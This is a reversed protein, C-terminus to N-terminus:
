AEMQSHTVGNEGLLLQMRSIFDNGPAVRYEGGLKLRRVGDATFMNIIVPAGGPSNRCLNKLDGLLGPKLGVQDLNLNLEVTEDEEVYDKEEEDPSAENGEDTFREIESAIIKVEVKVGEGAGGEAGAFAEAKENVKRDVRGKVTIIEDAALLERCRSFIDNFVIVEVSGELDDLQVFAMPDGKRTTFRKVRAVMGVVTVNARDAADVLRATTIAGAREIAAEHGKLPHSSVYMGLTEKELRMLDHSGFEDGPIHPDAVGPSADEMALDFFSGQGTLSDQQSQSGMALAQPMVALMGKRTAGTSDLAGCKILSEMAKKNLLRSDVRRCFDFISRFPGEKERVEIISRIVGSGVNKVAKLGFRIRDEVVRFGAGSENVDPPLVVIGMRTCADVYFPVKDKTEMVSSITAAMYEVPYNAKMYATQYSIMAYAVAHSKNFSYDGAAEMLNWLKAATRSTVKNEKCGEIFQHKLTALLERNKKGIAKRLDDAEAPSFSAMVKAIEMLQEQYIAVGYTPKLIDELRPDDYRVSDPKRKNRAYEPIFQMPGPRYLAVLAILDEFATPKVLKLSDKMGDSEFQFVGDSHGKQMMAFTKKDELPLNLLDIDVGCSDRVLKVATDLIDLNRLGLFDMKLLGLKEIYNMAYQTVVEADPGKQQLPIYETLPRDSIVVGAAHIGDQRVLGELFLALDIIERAVPNSDYAQRLEQGPKLCDKLSIGPGEPIFKVIADVDGYPHGLVRGADRTAQRAAMTGFTIIQAVSHRGYREAVYELVKERKEPSFDIDIDPMSKRGPNLFREFLLDYKLPDVETIGLCYSVLSGAASGRGPGVPIGNDKAFKVFDWVILFYSAFGMEAITKLEFELRERIEPTMDSGFRRQLGEECLKRLYVNKDGNDPVPFTPILLRDFELEVNCREAIERTNEIAEPFDKFEESMEEQNKLYLEFDTMKLRKEDALQSGTQICVLADHHAANEKDIYHVDQTAVLPSGNKQAFDHALIYSLHKNHGRWHPQIEIYVNEKGLIEKLKGIDERAEDYISKFTESQSAYFKKFNDKIATLQEKEFEKEEYDSNENFADIVSKIFTKSIKGKLCGSLAILGESYEKLVEIDIKPKYYYGEFYGKSCIKVLNQYGTNNRAFLTLHNWKMGAREFRDDVFYAELGIIPKIGRKKAELYFEIAGYLVGHDTIAIADMGLENCRDLLPGIKCAGDLLSYETHVHLHVFGNQPQPAASAGLPNASSRSM